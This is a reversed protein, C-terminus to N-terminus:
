PKTARGGTAVPASGKVPPLGASPEATIDIGDLDSGVFIFRSTFQYRRHSVELIYYRGAEVDDFRFRGAMDTYTKQAAGSLNGDTLTVLAERVPRGDAARVQGAVNVGAATPGMPPADININDLKLLTDDSGAQWFIQFDTMVQTPTQVAVNSFVQTTGVWIDATDNALNVNMGNPASYTIPGGTNNLVWTITQLGTFVTSNVTGNTVDRVQFGGTSTFDFAFQGYVESDAELVNATASFGSGLQVRVSDTATATNNSVEIDFRFQVASLPPASIDTSRKVSSRNAGTRGLCLMGNVITAQDTGTTKINDFLNPGAPPSTDVYDNVNNSSSFTQTFQAQAGTACFVLAFLVCSLFGFKKM